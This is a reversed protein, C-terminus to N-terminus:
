GNPNVEELLYTGWKVVHNSEMFQQPMYFNAHCDYGQGAYYRRHAVPNPWRFGEPPPLPAGYAVRVWFNHHGEKKVWGGIM